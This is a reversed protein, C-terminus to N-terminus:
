LKCRNFFKQGIVPLPFFLTIDKNDNWKRNRLIKQSRNSWIQFSINFIKKKNSLLTPSIIGNWITSDSSWVPFRKNVCTKSIIFPLSLFLEMLICKNFCNKIHHSSTPSILSESDFLFLIKDLGYPNLHGIHPGYPAFPTNFSAMSPWISGYTAMSAWPHGYLAM